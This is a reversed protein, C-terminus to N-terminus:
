PARFLDHPIPSPVNAPINLGLSRLIIPTIWEPSARESRVGPVLGPGLAIVPVHTDYEYPTGHSTGTMAFAFFYYPKPIVCVEGVRDPLYSKRLAVEIPDDEKAPKELDWRTFVKAVGRQSRCWQALDTAVEKLDLKREALLGPNLTIWM